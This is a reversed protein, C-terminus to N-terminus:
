RRGFSIKPIGRFNEPYDMFYKRLRQLYKYIKILIKKQVSDTKVNKKASFRGECLKKSSKLM